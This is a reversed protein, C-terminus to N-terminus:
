NANIFILVDGKERASGERGFVQKFNRKLWKQIDTASTLRSKNVAPSLPEITKGELTRGKQKLDPTHCTACSIKGHKDNPQETFFIKKGREASFDAFSADESAAQKRLAEVVAAAEPGFSEAAAFGVFAVLAMVSVILTFVTKM